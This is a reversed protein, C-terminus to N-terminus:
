AGATGHNWWAGLEMVSTPISPCAPTGSPGARLRCRGNALAQDGPWRQRWLSSPLAMKSSALPSSLLNQQVTLPRQGM